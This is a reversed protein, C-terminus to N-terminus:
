RAARTPGAFASIVGAIDPRAARCRGLLRPANEPAEIAFLTSGSGTIHIRSDPGAAAQLNQMARRLRPEVLCAPEALDNFLADPPFRKEGAARALIARVRPEDVSRQSLRDFAQYVPGTPCGFPPFLLVACQDATPGPVREIRDGFGGVIAARPSSGLTPSSVCPEDLFFAIDSGLSASLTRLDADSIGLRFLANIGILMSAADSSGGGLGGGVPTRKDLTMCVPLPRGARQELLRHARVALDKEIPWDIATPRPADPAWRITYESPSDPSLRSLSLDDHLDIAVFWSAIPHYGRPPAPPGVSLALNLKACARLSISPGITV